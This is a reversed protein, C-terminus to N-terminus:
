IRYKTLKGLLSSVLKVLKLYSTFLEQGAKQSAIKLSALPMAENQRWTKKTRNHWSIATKMELRSLRTLSTIKKVDMLKVTAVAQM